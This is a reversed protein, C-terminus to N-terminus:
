SHEIGEYIAVGGIIAAVGGVAIPFGFTVTEATEGVGLLGPVQSAQQYYRLGRYLGLGVKGLGIASLASGSALLIDGAIETGKECVRYWGKIFAEKLWAGLIPPWWSLDPVCSSDPYNNHICTTFGAGNCSSPDAPNPSVQSPPATRIAGMGTPDTYSTPNNNAYAYSTMSTKTYTSPLQGRERWVGWTHKDSNRLHPSRTQGGRKTASGYAFRLLPAATRRGPGQEADREIPTSTSSPRPNNDRSSTTSITANRLLPQDTLAIARWV